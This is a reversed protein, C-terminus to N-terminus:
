KEIHQNFTNTEKTCNNTELELVIVVININYNSSFEYYMPVIIECGQLKFIATKFDLYYVCYEDLEERIYLERPYFVSIM